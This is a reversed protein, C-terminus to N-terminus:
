AGEQMAEDKSEDGNTVGEDGKQEAEDEGGALIKTRVREDVPGGPTWSVVKGEEDAFEWRFRSLYHPIASLQPGYRQTNDYLEFLPVALLKMNKPVSLVRSPPLQLLYIKKCEKPRTCHPPLYPYMFTEYNPRYWQALTSHVTWDNETSTEKLSGTPALRENLRQKFGTIEDADHALYDGPLKFFANAIQIMLIHPHNHEHCVLLGESTRRMGHKDYYEELRRLRDKVSPDEEPQTEKTGFTYNSLPYLRIPDSQRADFPLIEKAPQSSKTDSTSISSM